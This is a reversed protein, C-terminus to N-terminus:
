QPEAQLVLEPRKDELPALVPKGAPKEVLHKLLENFSKKGIAKEMATIGLLHTEYILEKDYGAELLVEGAQQADKYRRMSRGEVIKWGAFHRGCKTAQEYMYDSLDKAWNVLRGAEKLLPGLEEESFLAPSKLEYNRLALPKAAKARCISRACCFQCHEGPHFDGEGKVALEARLRLEEEGWKVLEEASMCVSDMSNFDARVIRLEIEKLDYLLQFTEYTGLAYLRLQQMVKEEPEEEGLVLSIVYLKDEIILIVEGTQSEEIGWSSLDVSQELALMAEQQNFRAKEYWGLVQDVYSEVGELLTKHHYPAYAAELGQAIDRYNRAGLQGLKFKLKLISLLRAYDTEEQYLVTEKDFVEELRFSPTCNLWKYAEKVALSSGTQIRELM